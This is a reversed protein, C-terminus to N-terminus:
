TVRATFILGNLQEILDAFEPDMGLGVDVHHLPDLCGESV